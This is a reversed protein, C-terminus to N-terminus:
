KENLPEAGQLGFAAVRQSLLVAATASNRFSTDADENGNSCIDAMKSMFNMIERLDGVQEARQKKNCIVEQEVFKRKRIKEQVIRQVSGIKQLPKMLYEEIQVETLQQFDQRIKTNGLLVTKTLHQSINPVMNQIWNHLLSRKEPPPPM